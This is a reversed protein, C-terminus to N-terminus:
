RSEAAESSARRAGQFPTEYDCLARAMAAVQELFPTIANVRLLAVFQMRPLAPVVQVERLMGGAALERAVASPINALGLGATAMGGLASLSNCSLSSRPQVGHKALWRTMAVGVGSLNGQTLLTHEALQAVRMRRVGPAYTPSCYWGSSFAALPLKRLTSTKFVDAVMVLDARGQELAAVLNAGVGVELKLEVKPFRARLAEVFRPLWTLAALETVGIALSRQLSEDTAIQGLLVDRERLVTRALGLVEAGDVTLRASRASRDLLPRRFRGEFERIQRSIASQTVGLQRAAGDFSGMDAIAVYAELQTLTTM